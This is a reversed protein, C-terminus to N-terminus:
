SKDLSNSRLRASPKSKGEGKRAKKAAREKDAKIQALRQKLRHEEDEESSSDHASTSEETSSKSRARKGARRNAKRADAEAKEHAAKANNIYETWQAVTMKEFKVRVKDDLGGEGGVWMKAQAAFEIDPNTFLKRDATLTGNSIGLALAVHKKGFPRNAYKHFTENKHTRYAEPVRYPKTKKSVGTRSLNDDCYNIAEQHGNWRVLRPGIVNLIISKDDPKVNMADRLCELLDPDKDGDQEEDSDDDFKKKKKKKDDASKKRDRAEELPKVDGQFATSSNGMSSGAEDIGKKWLLSLVLRRTEIELPCMDGAPAELADPFNGKLFQEVSGLSLAVNGQMLTLRRYSTEKSPSLQALAAPILKKLSVVVTGADVDRFLPISAKIQTPIYVLQVVGNEGCFKPLDAVADQRQLAKYYSDILAPGPEPLPNPPAEEPTEDLEPPITEEESSLSSVTVHCHTFSLYHTHDHTHVVTMTDPRIFFFPSPPPHRSTISQRGPRQQM